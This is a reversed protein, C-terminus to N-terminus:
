LNKSDRPKPSHYGSSSYFTVLVSIAAPTRNYQVIETSRKILIILEQLWAM